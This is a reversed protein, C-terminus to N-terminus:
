LIKLDTNYVLKGNFITGSVNLKIFDSEDTVMPDHSLIVLDAVKGPEISGFRASEGLMSNGNKTYAMVAELPPIRQEFVSHYIAGRLGFIPDLPMCDSGFALPIGQDILSHYANCLKLREPGLREENLGGPVSWRAAFNPQASVWIGINKLHSLLEADV